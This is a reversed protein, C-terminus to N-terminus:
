TDCRRHLLVDDDRVAVINEIKVGFREVVIAEALEPSYTEVEIPNGCGFVIYKM